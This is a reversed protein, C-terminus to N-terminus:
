PRIGQAAVWAIQEAAAQLAVKQGFAILSQPPLSGEADNRATAILDGLVEQVLGAMALYGRYYDETKPVSDRVVTLAM